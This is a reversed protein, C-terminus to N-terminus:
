PWSACRSLVTRSSTSRERATACVCSKSRKTSRKASRSSIASFASQASTHRTLAPTIRLTTLQVRSPVSGLKALVM